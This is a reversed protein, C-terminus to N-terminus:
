VKPVTAPPPQIPNVVTTRLTDPAVPPMVDVGPIKGAAARSVNAAFTNLFKFAWAYFKSSTVDPSPMAGVAAAFMWYSAVIVYFHWNSLLGLFDNM